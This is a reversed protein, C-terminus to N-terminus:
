PQDNAERNVWDIYSDSDQLETADFYDKPYEVFGEPQKGAAIADATFKEAADRTARSIRDLEAQQKDTM